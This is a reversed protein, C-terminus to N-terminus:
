VTRPPRVPVLQDGAVLWWRVFGLVVRRHLVRPCRERPGLLPDAGQHWADLEASRDGGRVPARSLVQVARAGSGVIRRISLQAWPAMLIVDRWRKDDNPTTATTSPPNPDPATATAAAWSAPGTSNWRSM